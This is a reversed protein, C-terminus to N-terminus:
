KRRRNLNERVLKPNTGSDLKRLRVAALARSVFRHFTQILVEFAREGCGTKEVRLMGALEHRPQAAEKGACRELGFFDVDQAADQLRQRARGVLLRAGGTRTRGHKMRRAGGAEATCVQNM